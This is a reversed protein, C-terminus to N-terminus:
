VFRSFYEAGLQDKIVEHCGAGFLFFRADRLYRQQPCEGSISRPGSLRGSWDVVSQCMEAAFVKAMACEVPSGPRTQLRWAARYSLLRAASYWAWMDAVRARTAQPIISHMLRSDLSLQEKLDAMAAQALGCAAVATAVRAEGLVDAAYRMGGGPGDGLLNEDPVLVNDFVLEGAVVGAAGLKDIRQGDRFGPTGREVLFFSVGDLGSEQATNAAVVCFDCIPGNTVWLKRGNVLWGDAVQKATTQISMPDSGSGAETICITGIKEGRIAPGLIRRKTSESGFCAIMRTGMLAQMMVSMSLGVSVRATEEYLIMSTVVDSEMGGDSALHRIGLYGHSAITAWAERPFSDGGFLGPAALDVRSLVDRVEDRFKTQAETFDFYM